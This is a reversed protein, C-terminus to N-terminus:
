QGTRAMECLRERSIVQAAIKANNVYTTMDVCSISPVSSKTLGCGTLVSMMMIVSLGKYTLYKRIQKRSHLPKHKSPRMCNQSLQTLAM